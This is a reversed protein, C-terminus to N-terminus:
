RTRVWVLSSTRGQSVARVAYVGPALGAPGELRGPAGPGDWLVAVERGRVDVVSVRVAGDAQVRVATPGRSPNPGAFSLVPRAAPPGGESPTAALVLRYLTGAYDTVVLAGGVEDISSINVPRRGGQGDPVSELLVRPEGVGSAGDAALRYAWLRGTVFDGYVYDSQPSSLATTVVGGTVSYGGEPTHPYSVVPPEYAALDCGARYCAPGEVQSWGYNGGARVRDVEEWASQGVDGVWLDGTAVDFKFPNRFGYAYVEPRGGGGVFPNDPPVSYAQGPPVDDVGIRLISGLLTTPDQGNAYPDGGGGGDGLGVYLTGDPAFAITGGNHNAEPQPVELLVRESAPDARLPDAASREFESVRSLLVGRGDGPATYSVFLRGNDAYGPHFALGLLGAEGGAAARGTLDLVVTAAPDGPVLTLVRSPLGGGGQELVYVRGPQGPATEVGVPQAFSVGPTAPVATVPTQQSWAPAAHLALVAVAALARCAM